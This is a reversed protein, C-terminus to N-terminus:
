RITRSIACTSHARDIERNAIVVLFRLADGHFANRRPSSLSAMMRRNRPSRCTSAQMSCGNMALSSSPPEVASRAQPPGPSPPCRPDDSQHIKALRAVTTLRRLTWREEALEACRHLESMLREITCRSRFGLLTSSVASPLGLSTSKPM